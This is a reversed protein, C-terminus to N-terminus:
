DNYKGPNFYLHKNFSYNWFVPTQKSVGTKHDYLEAIKPGIMKLMDEIHTDQAYNLFVDYLANIYWSGELPERNTVFGPLSGYCILMDSFTPLNPNKMLLADHETEDNRLDPVGIDISEGRCFPFFLIKPKKILASCNKNSFNEMINHVQERQNDFFTVYADKKDIMQGHSMLAMVFCQTQKCYDSDLLKTLVNQFQDKTIDEYKFIDFDLKGFLDVLNTTDYQAGRREREVDCEFKTINVLLLVGKKRKNMLYQEIKPKTIGNVKPRQYISEEPTISEAVLNLHLSGNEKRSSPKLSSSTSPRRPAVSRPINNNIINNSNTNNWNNRISQTDNLKELASNFKNDKLIQLLIAYADPGRQTIKKLLAKHRDEKEKHQSEIDKKMSISFFIKEELPPYRLCSEMLNEYNTSSVLFKINNIIANRHHSDM